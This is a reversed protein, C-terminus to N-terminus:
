VCGNSTCRLFFVYLSHYKPVRTCHLLLLIENLLHCKKMKNTKKHLHIYIYEIIHMCLALEGFSSEIKICAIPDYILRTLRQTTYTTSFCCCLITTTTMHFSMRFLIQHKILKKEPYIEHKNFVSVRLLMAVLHKNREAPLSVKEQMMM